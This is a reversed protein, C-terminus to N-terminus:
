MDSALAEEPTLGLTMHLPRSRYYGGVGDQRNTLQLGLLIQGLEHGRACFQYNVRKEPLLRSEEIDDVERSLLFIRVVRRWDVSAVSPELVTQSLVSSIPM